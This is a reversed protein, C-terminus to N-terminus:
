VVWRRLLWTTRPLQRPHRTLRRTTECVFASFATKGKMMAGTQTEVRDRRTAARVCDTIHLLNGPEFGLRELSAASADIAHM